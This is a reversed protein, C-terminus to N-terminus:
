SKYMADIEQFYNKYIIRRKIKLTPTLEDRNVSFEEKLIKFKKIQEFRALKSNILKMDESILQAIRPHTVLESPATYTYGHTDAYASITLFDPVILASVFNKNDAVVCAQSIFKSSCLLYEIPSAFINKGGSTILIEKKRGVITLFKENDLSGIDGTHFWGDHDIAESSASINNFYGKFISPGKILIENDEALKYELNSIVKGVSGPKIEHLRNFSVIPSAETIGYGELITIECYKFFYYIPVQLAAGGSVFFKLNKGFRRKIKKFVLFNALFMKSKLYFSIRSASDKKIFYNKAVNLSWYFIVRKFFGGRYVNDIIRQHIKEFLRPVCVMISPQIEKLNRLLTNSNEVFAIRGGYGAIFFFAARELVHSLPLISLTKDKSSLTIKLDRLLAELNSLFNEHSLQVGKPDNTTGSTFIITATDSRKIKSIKDLIQKEWSTDKTKLIEEYYFLKVKSDKFYNLNGNSSSDFSIINQISPCNPLITIIKELQEHNSVFITSIKAFNIPYQIQLATSTDYIPVSILGLSMISIDAVLWEPRNESLIAIKDDKSSKNQDLFYSISLVQEKYETWTLNRYVLSNRKYKIFTNSNEKEIQTFILNPISNSNKFNEGM